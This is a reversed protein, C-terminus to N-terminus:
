AASNRFSGGENAASPPAARTHLPCAADTCRGTLKLRNKAFLHYAADLLQAIGPLRSLAVLRQFGVAEYLRRFVEVGEIVTGDPLRAHIRDMLAQWSVGLPVPDFGEASIDIFRIAGARDLRQLLQMERQCLPCKGDHFVEIEIKSVVM